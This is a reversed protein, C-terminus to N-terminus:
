STTQTTAKISSDIDKRAGEIVTVAIDKVQQTAKELQRKLDNIETVQEKISQEFSAIKLAYLQQKADWEQKAFNQRIQSEKKEQGIAQAVATKVAKDLEQPFLVAKRRLETLEGEMQAQQEKKKQLDYEWARKEEEFTDKERKKNLTKQYAYEEEERNRERKLQEEYAKQEEIWENRKEEMAREFKEEELKQLEIMRKLMGVHLKIKNSEALEVKAISIAKQLIAFREAEATLQDTLSSITQNASIRLSSLDTTIKEVTEKAASELIQQDQNITEDEVIGETAQNILEYYAELIENKTNKESVKSSTKTQKSM